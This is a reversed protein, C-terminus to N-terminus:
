GSVLYWIAQYFKFVAAAGFSFVGVVLSLHVLTESLSKHRMSVHHSQGHSENMMKLLPDPQTSKVRTQSRPL